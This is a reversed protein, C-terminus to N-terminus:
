LPPTIETVKRFNVNLEKGLRNKLCELVTNVDVAIENGNANLYEEGGIELEKLDVCMALVLHSLALIRGDRQRSKLNKYPVRFKDGNSLLDELFKSRHSRKQKMVKTEEGVVDEVISDDGVDNCGAQVHSYERTRGVVEEEEFNRAVVTDGGIAVKM